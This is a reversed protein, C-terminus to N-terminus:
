PSLTYERFLVPFGQITPSLFSHSSSLWPCPCSPFHPYLSSFPFFAIATPRKAPYQVPLLHFTDPPSVACAFSCFALSPGLCAMKWAGLSELGVRPSSYCFSLHHSPDKHSVCTLAMTVDGLHLYTCRPVEGPLGM